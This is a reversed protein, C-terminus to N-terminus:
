HNEAEKTGNNFKKNQIIHIIKEKLLTRANNLHWKSTGVSIKLQNAIQV